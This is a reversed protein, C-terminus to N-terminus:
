KVPCEASPDVFVSGEAISPECGSSPAPPAFSWQRVSAAVAEAVVPDVIAPPQVDLIEGRPGLRVGIIVFNVRTGGPPCVIPVKRTPEIKHFQGYHVRAEEGPLVGSPVGGVRAGTAPDFVHIACDITRLLLRGEADFAARQAQTAPTWLKGSTTERMLERRFPIDGGAVERIGDATLLEIVAGDWYSESISAVARGDGAVVVGYSFGPHRFASGWLPKKGGAEYLDLRWGSTPDQERAVLKVRAQFRGDASDVTFPTFSPPRSALAAASGFFYGAAVAAIAVTHGPRM